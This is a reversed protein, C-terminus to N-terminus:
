WGGPGRDDDRGQPDAKGSTGRQGAPAHFQTTARGESSTTVTSDSRTVERSM